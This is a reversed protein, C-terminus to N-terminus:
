DDNRSEKAIWIWANLCGLCLGAILLALTWSRGSSTQSDIWLGVAVGILTPVSIAWGVLGFMGLGFWASRKKTSQAILKREAQAKTIETLSRQQDLQQIKRPEDTM